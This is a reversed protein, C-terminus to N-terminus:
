RMQDLRAVINEHRDDLKLIKKAQDEIMSRDSARDDIAVKLAEHCDKIQNAGRARREERAALKDVLTKKERELRSVTNRTLSVEHTMTFREKQLSGERQFSDRLRHKLIGEERSGEAHREEHEDNRAMLDTNEDIIEDIRAHLVSIEFESSIRLAVLKKKAGTVHVTEL